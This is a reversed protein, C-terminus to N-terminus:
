QPVQEFSTLAPTSTYEDQYIRFCFLEKDPNEVFFTSMNNDFNKAWLLTSM